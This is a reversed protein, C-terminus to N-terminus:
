AALRLDPEPGRRGLMRVQCGGFASVPTLKRWCSSRSVVAGVASQSCTCLAEQNSGERRRRVVRPIGQVAVATSFERAALGKESSRRLADRNVSAAVAGGAPACYAYATIDADVLSDFNCLGVSWGLRTDGGDNIFVEGDAPIATLGGSVARRGSPCWAIVYDTAGAPLTKNAKVTTLESFGVPGAPGQAGQPGRAGQPGTRGKKLM